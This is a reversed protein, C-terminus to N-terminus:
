AFAPIVGIQQFLGLIDGGEWHETIKGDAMHLITIGIIKYPKGSPPIGMLDGNQTGSSTFRAIARTETVTLDDIEVHLDPFGAKFMDLQLQAGALDAPNGAADYYVFDPAFLEPDMVGKNVCEVFRRALDENTKLVDDGM